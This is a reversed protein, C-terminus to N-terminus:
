EGDYHINKANKLLVKRYAPYALTQLLRLPLERTWWKFASRVHPQPDTGIYMSRKFNFSYIKIDSIEKKVDKAVRGLHQKTAIILISKCNRKRAFEKFQLIIELSNIYEGEGQTARIVEVSQPFDYWRPIDNQTFITLGGETTARRVAERAIIRNADASEGYAFALVCDFRFPKKKM